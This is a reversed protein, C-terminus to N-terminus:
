PTHPEVDLGGQSAPHLPTEGTKYLALAIGLFYRNYSVNDFAALSSTQWVRSVEGHLRGRDAFSWSADLTAAVFDVLRRDHRDSRQEAAPELQALNAFDRSRAASASFGLTTRRGLTSVGVVASDLGVPRGIGVGPAIGHRLEGDWRLRERQHTLQLDGEIGSSRLSPRNAAPQSSATFGGLELRLASGHGFIKALAATAEVVNSSLGTFRYSSAEAKVELNREADLQFRLGARGGVGRSNSLAPDAFRHLSQSAGLFTVTRRTWNTDLESDFDQYLENGRRPAVVTETLTPGYLTFTPSSLLRESLHLSSRESLAANAALNLRHTLGSLSDTGERRNLDQEYFPSYELAFDLRRLTYSLNLNFGGRGTSRSGASSSAGTVDPGNRVDYNGDSRAGAEAELLVRLQGAPMEPMAARVPQAPQALLLLAPALFRWRGSSVSMWGIERRM